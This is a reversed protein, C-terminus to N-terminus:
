RDQLDPWQYDRFAILLQGIALIASAMRNQVVKADALTAEANVQTSSINSNFWTLLDSQSWTAWNPITKAFSRSSKYRGIAAGNWQVPINGSLSDIQGQTLIDSTIKVGIQFDIFQTDPIGKSPGMWIGDIEVSANPDLASISNQIFILPLTSRLEFNAM